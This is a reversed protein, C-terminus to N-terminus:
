CRQRWQEIAIAVEAAVLEGIGLFAEATSEGSCSFLSNGGGDGKSSLYFVVVVSNVVAPIYMIAGVSVTDVGSSTEAV